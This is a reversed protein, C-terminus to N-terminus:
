NLREGASQAMARAGEHTNPVLSAIAAFLENVQIPKSVYADMGAELCRERDGVMAHATMAIIPIHQGTSKERERIIATATFGDMEPMQVDMLVLDFSDKALTQLAAKGTGAVVVTHGRKEFLRVALTQNVPNDEVLLINLRNQIVLPSGTVASPQLPTNNSEAVLAPKNAPQLQFRAHFHFTSGRGPDSEVWIQGGMIQVLRSSIALGLGTGGYNRTMSSDAQTFAEFILRQKERPIGIGTDRVTFHLLTDEGAERAKEVHLVVQGHSTFKIANGVLNVVIQRLRNPDGQLCDPVDPQIHCALELAKQSARFRFTKMTNQLTDRLSFDITELDLRGAEIKSFDLIDNLLVLLSDASSKVTNLYEQQESNLETDLALETMGIIGNMPTRIEHSMNALFESKARSAQEASEKAKRLVQEAQRRETVDAFTVVTGVVRGGRRLPHSWYEASFSTRDLRWLVEDDIHTGVGRHFAEYIHCEEM